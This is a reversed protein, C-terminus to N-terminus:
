TKSGSCDFQETGQFVNSNTQSLDPMFIETDGRGGESQHVFSQRNRTLLFDVLLCLDRWFFVHFNDVSCLKKPTKVHRKIRWSFITGSPTGNCLMPYGLVGYM